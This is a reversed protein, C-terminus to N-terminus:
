RCSARDRPLFPIPERRTPDRPSKIGRGRVYQCLEQIGEEIRVNLDGEPAKEILDMGIEHMELVHHQEGM